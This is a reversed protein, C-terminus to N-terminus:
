NGYHHFKGTMAAEIVAQKGIKGGFNAEYSEAVLDFVAQAADISPQLTEDAEMQWDMILTHIGYILCAQTMGDLATVFGIPNTGQKEKAAKYADALAKGEATVPVKMFDTAIGKIISAVRETALDENIGDEKVLTGVESRFLQTFLPDIFEERQELIDLQEDYTM